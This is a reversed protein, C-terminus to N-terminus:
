INMCGGAEANKKSQKVMLFPVLSSDQLMLLLSGLLMVCCEQLAFVKVVDSGTYPYLSFLTIFSHIFSFGLIEFGQLLDTKLFM